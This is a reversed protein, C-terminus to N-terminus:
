RFIIEFQYPLLVTQVSINQHCVVMMISTRIRIYIYIYIDIWTETDRERDRDRHIHIYIYIHQLTLLKAVM